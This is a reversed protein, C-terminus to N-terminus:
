SGADELSRLLIADGESSEPGYNAVVVGQGQCSPCTLALVAWYLVAAWAIQAAAQRKNMFYAAYIAVWFYLMELDTAPAGRREGTFYVCVTILVTGLFGLAQLQFLTMHSARARLLAAATAAVASVGVFGWTFTEAPHPLVAVLLAILAGGAWLGSQMRAMLETNATLGPVPLDVVPADGRSSNPM